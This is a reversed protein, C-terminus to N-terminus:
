GPGGAFKGGITSTVDAAIHTAINDFVAEMSGLDRGQADRRQVYYVNDCIPPLPIANM